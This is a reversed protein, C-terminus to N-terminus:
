DAARRCTHTTLIKLIIYPVAGHNTSITLILNLVEVSQGSQGSIMLFIQLWGVASQESGEKLEEGPTAETVDKYGRTQTKRIKEKHTNKVLFSSPLRRVEVGVGRCRWSSPLRRRSVSTGSVALFFFSAALALFFLSAM